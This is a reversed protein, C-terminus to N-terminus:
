GGKQKIFDLQTKAILLGSELGLLLPFWEKDGVLNPKLIEDFIQLATKIAQYARDFKGSADGTNIPKLCQEIFGIATKSDLDEPLPQSEGELKRKLHLYAFLSINM